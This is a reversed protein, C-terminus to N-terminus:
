CSQFDGNGDVWVTMAVDYTATPNVTVGGCLDNNNPPCTSSGENVNYYIEAGGIDNVARFLFPNPLNFTGHQTCSTSSLPGAIYTWTTGNDTSYQLEYEQGGALTDGAKSYFTVANTGQKVKVKFGM